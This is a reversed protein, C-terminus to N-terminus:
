SPPGYKKRLELNVQLVNVMKEGALGGFPATAYHQLVSEIEAHVTAPDRKTDAAWKSAVRDLQFEANQLTIHPDLGSGSTTVMDGPVDQLAVGPHDQRWMGFFTSQVDSGDKVAQILTLAKGDPGNTTVTSPFRGPNEKSFSEFFVVALDAPKPQLTGPNDKIFQAIAPPHAAAWNSVYLGHSPDANVWAQALSNHADAWQAVISANGQFHDEQFWQEIDPAVLQGAKPGSKYKVIPGLTTAVRNRLAYNSPALASSASASADYSAASPRPQFYEAKAFPQAILLSGVPAGDPGKVISGNAHFPFMAQGVVWLLAPYIGCCIAVFFLLLWISKSINRLM